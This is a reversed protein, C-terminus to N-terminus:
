RQAGERNSHSWTLVRRELIGFVGNVALGFFGIIFVIAYMRADQGTSQAIGLIYGLGAAGGILETIISAILAGIVSLRLGIAVYGGISPLVMATLRRWRRVRHIRAMDLLTADIDRMGYATQIFVPWFATYIILALKMELSTGFILLGVPLLAVPPIPRMLEILINTSRQVFVFTGYVTGALIAAITAIALGLGTSILTQATATWLASDGILTGLAAGVSSPTPIRTTAESRVQAAIEWVSLLLLVTVAGVWAPRYGWGRTRRGPARRDGAPHGPVTSGTTM